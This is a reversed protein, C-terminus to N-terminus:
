FKLQMRLGTAAMSLHFSTSPRYVQRPGANYVEVAKKAKNNASIAFPISGVILGGGVYAITWNPTGGGLSTGLPYGVLGGGIVGLITALTNNSKASSILQYAEPNTQMVKAVQSLNMKGNGNRFQM